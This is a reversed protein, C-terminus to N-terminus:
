EKALGPRWILSEAKLEALEVRWPTFRLLGYYKNEITGYGPEPDFGLPPPISKHLDWIRLKEEVTDVWEAICDVYVPKTSEAIYAISVHPNNALHKAKLTAPWTIVWGIPGDWVVHMIRSRPRNKRDVTAVNCYIAQQARRMFEVQIEEFANVNM